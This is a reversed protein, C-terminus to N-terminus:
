TLQMAVTVTIIWCCLSLRHYFLEVIHTNNIITYLKLFLHNNCYTILLIFRAGHKSALVVVSEDTIGTCGHLTVTDLRECSEVIAMLGNDTLSSWNANIHTLYRCRAAHLLITDGCLHGTACGQISLEQLLIM